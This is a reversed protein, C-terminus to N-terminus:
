IFVAKRLEQLWCRVQQLYSLSDKLKILVSSSIALRNVCVCWIQKMRPNNELECLQQNATASGTCVHCRIKLKVLNFTILKLQNFHQNKTFGASSYAWNRQVSWILIVTKGDPASLGYFRGSKWSSRTILESKLRLTLSHRRRRILVSVLSLRLHNARLVSENLVM